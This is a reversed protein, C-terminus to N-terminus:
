LILILLLALLAMGFNEILTVYTLPVKLFTGLCACMFREKRALKLSVGIGGFAMVAFEVWLLWQPHYGALMLLGFGIEIFPYIYGYGYWRKALLDYTSYASAFGSLDLLKFGGFVLFFGTMFTIVFQELSREGTTSVTIASATILGFIAILPLYSRWSKKGLGNDTQVVPTTTKSQEALKMGCKSCVGPKHSTVDPHM